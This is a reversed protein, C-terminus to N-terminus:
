LRQNEYAVREETHELDRFMAKLRRLGAADHGAVRDALALAAAEAEAAPVEAALLGLEAADRAGLMRGTLILEKARALGVRADLALNLEALLATDMANRREPRDLRLVEIGDGLRERVLSAM